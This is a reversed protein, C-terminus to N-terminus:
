SALKAQETWYTMASELQRFSARLVSDSITQDPLVLSLGPRLLRAYSRTLFLAYRLGRDTVDYRHTRPIRRILGRLRLRRLDYTVAGPTTRHGRLPELRERLDRNSFGNPLLRFLVLAHLLTQVRVDGFRLASARQEGVVRPRQLAYFGDEGISCDHSIRQVDLLRRNARFGVERLAPLNHLRKGIDFDNTNNITTETRLARGEKHYQKIRTTKYDVHLSPYVGETIVRTRFRGPTAHRGKHVIRREFILQVQDPRGIDLNERIVEEFFVRGTVPRDLVQTLSFEAQLISPVYRIGAARDKATFPHPLRRLWKRLLADIKEASLEDCIRQLTSPDECSLIGNDLAEYRVGRRALQRKVYEHGNICLKANFPFYSCFKLFFPGFDRDVAYFYYQNVMATSRFLWAYSAGTHPNRRRETRFVPAKEQAKGVFLLGEAGCFRAGYEAAVEDKRQKKEFTVVDLHERRAFHELSDVFARTIPAMVASSAFSYGRIKRFFWNIGGESQLVPIVLNLYMRDISEVELTVHDRLIEAVTRPLTM